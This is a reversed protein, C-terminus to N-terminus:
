SSGGGFATWTWNPLPTSRLVSSSKARRTSVAKWALASASAALGAKSAAPGTTSVVAAPEM